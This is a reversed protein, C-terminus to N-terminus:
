KNICRKPVAVVPNGAAYPAVDYQQFVM